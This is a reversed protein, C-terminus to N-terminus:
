MAMFDASRPFHKANKAEVNWIGEIIEGAFNNESKNAM